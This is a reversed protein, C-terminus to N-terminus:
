SMVTAADVAAASTVPMRRALTMAVSPKSTMGARRLFAFASICCFTEAKRSRAAANRSLSAAHVDGCDNALPEADIQALQGARGDAALNRHAVGHDVPQNGLPNAM